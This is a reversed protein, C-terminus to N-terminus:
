TAHEKVIGRRWGRLSNILWIEEARELDDPYLAAEGIEGRELLEQRLVGPLLGSELRPTVLRGGLRLVLNHYSGETLEGRRNVFLVEDCDPREQRARDLLERRSTKHYRFRDAPEVTVGALGLRLPTDDRTLPSTTLGLEGRGDLTLRLRLPGADGAVGALLALAKGTDFPFGFYDASAAMRGLHRELRPIGGQERGMTEILVFPDSDTRLFEGKGVCERYEEEGRSGWTVGSGVPLVLRGTQRDLLLTRIAVSFTAEGGPALCGIAGCYVGRPSSELDAIIEMSRRKPAGTVSGCPFLAAFLDMLTTGPRLRASVTSTMQHVTPYSEVRFLSDVRVTGTGAVIGLDNRLLDVIMLNEAREKPSAALARARAMDEDPWRGRPATGKMPRVTIDDGRRAFFLEPSASAIVFRGTDLYAAFPARQGGRIRRYLRLPDGGFSGELPFTYNVQYCEGRAIRERISEVRATYEGPSLAPRLLPAEGPATGGEGEEGASLRERYLAFWALPLGEVGALTPLDPNLACAAEYAVYGVAYVGGEVLEEVKDLLTPVEEPLRAALTTVFGAFRWSHPFDGRPSADLLVLPPSDPM